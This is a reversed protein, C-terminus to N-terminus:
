SMKKRPFVLHYTMNTRFEATQCGKSYRNVEDNIEFGIDCLTSGEPIRRKMIRIMMKSFLSMKDDDDTWAVKGSMTAYHVFVNTTINTYITRDKGGGKRRRRTTVVDDENIEETGRCCDFFYLKPKNDLSPCHKNDFTTIIDEFFMGVGNSCDIYGDGGHGSVSLILGDYTDVSSANIKIRMEELFKKLQEDSMRFNCSHVNNKNYVDSWLDRLGDRDEYVAPLFNEFELEKGYEAICCNIIM